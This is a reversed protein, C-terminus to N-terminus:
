PHFFAPFFRHLFFDSDSIDNAMISDIPNARSMSKDPAPRVGFVSAPDGPPLDFYRFPVERGKCAFLGDEAPECGLLKLTQLDLELRQAPAVVHHDRVRRIHPAAVHITPERTPGFFAVFFDTLVQASAEDLSSEAKGVISAVFREDSRVGAHVDGRELFHPFFNDFSRADNAKYICTSGIRM